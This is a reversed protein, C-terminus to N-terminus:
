QIIVILMPFNISVYTNYFFFIKLKENTLEHLYQIFQKSNNQNIEYNGLYIHLKDTCKTKIYKILKFINGHSICLDM